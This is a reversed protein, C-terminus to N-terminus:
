AWFPTPVGYFDLSLYLDIQHGVSELPLAMETTTSRLCIVWAPITGYIDLDLDVARDKMEQYSVIARAMWKEPSLKWVPADVTFMSEGNHDRVHVEFQSEFPIVTNM